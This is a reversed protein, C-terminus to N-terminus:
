IEIDSGAEEVDELSDADSEEHEVEHKGKSSEPPNLEISLKKMSFTLDKARQNYAEKEKQSLLKWSNSCQMLVPKDTGKKMQPCMDQLYLTYGNMPYKKLPSANKVNNLINDLLAIIDDSMLEDKELNTKVLEIVSSYYNEFIRTLKQSPM